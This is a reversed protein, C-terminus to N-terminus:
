AMEAVLDNLQVQISELVALDSTPRTPSLPHTRDSAIWGKAHLYMAASHRYAPVPDRFAFQGLYQLIDNLEYFKSSALEWARDRLAFLQPDFTSLGLLYDSGYMIMDIALDNGTLVMFDPRVRDRLALRQWEPERRLSSHKAGVCNGIQMIREYTSLDYIKGFPVFVQSLEFAIFKRCCASIQEYADSVRHGLGILGFSQIIVPMGGFKEIADLQMRYADMQFSDSCRDRVFAGAVFESGQLVDSAHELAALRTVDDIFSAYGTDMNIAPRLGADFTRRVHARFGDWDIFGDQRYPLLIASM